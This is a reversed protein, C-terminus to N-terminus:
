GLLGKVMRILEETDVPKSIYGEPPPVHRRSSIFRKFDESM